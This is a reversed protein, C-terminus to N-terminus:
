NADVTTEVDQLLILEEYVGVIRGVPPTTQWRIKLAPRWAPPQTSPNEAALLLDSQYGVLLCSFIGCMLSQEYEGLTALTDDLGLLTLCRASGDGSSLLSPDVGHLVRRPTPCKLTEIVDASVTTLIKCLLASM